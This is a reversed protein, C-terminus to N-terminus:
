EDWVNKVLNGFFLDFDDNDKLEPSLCITEM